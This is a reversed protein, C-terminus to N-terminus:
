LTLRKEGHIARKRSSAEAPAPCTFIFVTLIIDFNMVVVTLVQKM